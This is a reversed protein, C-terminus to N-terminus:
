VPQIVIPSCTETRVPRDVEILRRNRRSGPVASYLPSPFRASPCVFQQCSNWLYERMCCLFWADELPKVSECVTRAVM